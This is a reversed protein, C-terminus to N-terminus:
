CVEPREDIPGFQVRVVGDAAVEIFVSDLPTGYDVYVVEFRVQVCALRVREGVGGAGYSSSDKEYLRRDTM